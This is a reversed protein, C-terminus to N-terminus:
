GDALAKEVAARGADHRLRSLETPVTPPITIQGHLRRLFELRGVIALNSVPSTDSVVRM